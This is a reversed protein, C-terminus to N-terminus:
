GVGVFWDDDSVLIARWNPQGIDRIHDVANFVILEAGPDAILFALLRRHQEVNLPLGARIDDLRDIAHFLEQRPQGARKWRRDM